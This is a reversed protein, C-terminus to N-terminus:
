AARKRRWGYGLLGLSGLGLLTLSAPEPVVNGNVRFAAEEQDLTSWSAGGDYSFGPTGFIHNGGVPSGAFM